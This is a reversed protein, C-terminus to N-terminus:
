KFSFETLATARRSASRGVASAVATNSPTECRRRGVIGPLGVAATRACLGGSQHLSANATNRLISPTRGAPSREGTTRTVLSTTSDPTSSNTGSPPVSNSGATTNTHTGLLRSQSRTRRLTPDRQERQESRAGRLTGNSRTSRCPHSIRSICDHLSLLLRPLKM